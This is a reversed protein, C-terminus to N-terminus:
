LTGTKKQWFYLKLYATPLQRHISIKYFVHICQVIKKMQVTKNKYSAFKLTSLNFIWILM